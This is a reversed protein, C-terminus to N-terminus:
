LGPLGKPSKLSIPLATSGEGTPTTNQQYYIIIRQNM